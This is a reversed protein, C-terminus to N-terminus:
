WLRYWSKREPEQGGGVLGYADAYWESDPFNYGLVSATKRAESNLGLATYAETLRLLAEPVHTTTQYRDVVNKFRNIAALYFKQRLYYRGIDMEKGALHDITLDLKIRADRSYQSEPFRAILEEFTRRAMETMEQDRDVTSIREYYCLGKLYYAYAVDQHAPNLEIFRDASLVCDDYENAQYHAFAAMVQSRVAWTSYPHQREVEDFLKAAQEYQKKDMNDMADNYLDDVPRDAYEPEKTSSCATVVLLVAVVGAAARNRFRIHSSEFTM